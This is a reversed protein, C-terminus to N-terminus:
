FGQWDARFNSQAPERRLLKYEAYGAENWTSQEEFGAMTKVHLNPARWQGSSTVWRGRQKEYKETYFVENSRAFSLLWPDLQSAYSRILQLKRRGNIAAVEDPKYTAWPEPLRPMPSSLSLASECSPWCRGAHVMSRHVRQPSRDLLDLARRFYVYTMAHDPHADLGHPVYVEKPQLRELVAALDQTLETSTWRGPAGTRARHEDIRNASVDGYTEDQTTCGGTRSRHARPGLPQTNLKALAGDPYGLVILQTEDIDLSRLVAASEAQRLYADRECGLDGNTVLVVAISLREDAARALASSAMLVEDDPHPAIILLDVPKPVSRHIEVSPRCAM